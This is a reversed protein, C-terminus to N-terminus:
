GDMASNDHGPVALPSIVDTALVRGLAARIHVREVRRSRRRPVHPDARARPRGADLESRLRRRLLDRAPDEPANMASDTALGFHSKLGLAPRELAHWSLMAMVLTVPFAYAFLTLPELNGARQVITQQIPFAYVYLGYSYDGARNPLRWRLNPHYAAVLVAYTLLPAFM